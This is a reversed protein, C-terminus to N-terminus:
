AHEVVSALEVLYMVENYSFTPAHIFKNTAYYVKFIYIFVYYLHKCLVM